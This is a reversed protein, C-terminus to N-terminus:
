LLNQCFVLISFFIPWAGPTLYMAMTFQNFDGGAVNKFATM